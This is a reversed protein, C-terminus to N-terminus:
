GGKVIIQQTEPTTRDFDEKCGWELTGELPLLRAM